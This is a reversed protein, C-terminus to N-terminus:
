RCTEISLWCRAHWACLVARAGCLPRNGMLAAARACASADSFARARERVSRTVCRVWANVSLRTASRARANM